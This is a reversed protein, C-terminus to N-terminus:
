KLINIKKAHLVTLFILRGTKEFADAKSTKENDSMKIKEKTPQKKTKKCYLSLSIKNPQSLLDHKKKKILIHIYVIISLLISTFTLYLRSCFDCHIFNIIITEHVINLMQDLTKAM